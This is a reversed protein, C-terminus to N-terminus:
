LIIATALNSCNSRRGPRAPRPSFMCKTRQVAGARWAQRTPPPGVTAHSMNVLAIRIESSSTSILALAALATTGIGRLQNCVLAAQVHLAAVPFALM